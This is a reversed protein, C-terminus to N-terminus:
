AVLDPAAQDVASEAHLDSATMPLSVRFTSGEAVQSDVEVHGGLQEIFRHVIYLGLGVGGPHNDQGAQRFMGFIHPLDEEQIGSGTDSVVIRLTASTRQYFARVTVEGQETFKLANGVLNKVIIRLKSPDTRVADPPATVDWRLRVAPKRPSHESEREMQAFLGRLDVDRLQLRARGAEIRNVELTSTILELLSDANDRLRRIVTSQESQLPGFAHDALLESYGIIVNLPTRLEHSMTALFESKMHDATRLDDLLRANNLAIAAHQAIGRFLREGADSFSKQHTGMGAVLIGMMTDGRMLYSALLSHVEWSRMLSATRADAATLGQIGVYGEDIVLDILPFTGSGFEIGELEDVALPTKGARGVLRFNEEQRLLILTWDCALAGRISDSIRDLAEPVDLAGNIEKAISVLGRSTSAEEERLTAERFLAFRHLDLYHAGLMSITAGTIEALVLYVKPISTPEALSLVAIYGLFTSATLTAQGRIGWPLLLSTGTMLCIGGFVVVAPDVAAVIAYSHVLLSLVVWLGISWPLFLEKKLLAPRLVLLIACATAELGYFFLWARIRDPYLLYECIGSLGILVLFWTVSQSIREAQLQESDRRYADSLTSFGTVSAASYALDLGHNFVASNPSSVRRAAVALSLESRSGDILARIRARM